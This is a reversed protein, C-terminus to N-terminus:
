YRLNARLLPPDCRHRDIQQFFRRNRQRSNGLKRPDQSPPFSLWEMEGSDKAPALASESALAQLENLHAPGAYRGLRGQLPKKLAQGLRHGLGALGRRRFSLLVQLLNLALKTL